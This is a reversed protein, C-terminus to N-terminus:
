QHKEMLANRITQVDGFTPNGAEVRSILGNVYFQLNSRQAAVLTRQLNIANNCASVIYRKEETGDQMENDAHRLRDALKTADDILTTYNPSMTKLEKRAASACEACLSAQLKHDTAPAEGCTECWLTEEHM